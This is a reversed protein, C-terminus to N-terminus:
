GCEVGDGGVMDKAEVEAVTGTGDGIEDVLDEFNKQVKPNKIVDAIIKDRAGGYMNGTHATCLNDFEWATTLNLLWKQFKDPAGAERSIGCGFCCPHLTLDGVETDCLDQQRPDGTLDGCALIVRFANSYAREKYMFTDNCHVTKASTHLVLVSALHNAEPPKPDNFECGDPVSMKLDPEFTARTEESDLSGAWVIPQDKADSTRVILHRPCGYYKRKDGSPYAAHFSPIALTHFPHCCVVGTLLKGGDTIDDIQKIIAPTMEVCDLAVFEGNALKCLSMHTYSNFMGMLMFDVHINWFGPSIEIFSDLTDEAKSGTSGM